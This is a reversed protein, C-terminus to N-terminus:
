KDAQVGSQPKREAKQSGAEPQVNRKVLAKVHEWCFIGSIRKGKIEVTDTKECLVCSETSTSKITFM